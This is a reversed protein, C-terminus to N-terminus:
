PDPGQTHCFAPKIGAGTILSALLLRLPISLVVVVGGVFFSLVGLAVVGVWFFSYFSWSFLSPKWFVM